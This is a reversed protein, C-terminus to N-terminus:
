PIPFSIWCGFEEDIRRPGIAPLRFPALPFLLLVGPSDVRDRGRGEGRGNSTQRSVVRARSREGIRLLLLGDGGGGQEMTLEEGCDRRAAAAAASDGPAMAAAIAVTAAFMPAMVAKPAAVGTLDRKRAPEEETDARPQELPLRTEMASHSGPM